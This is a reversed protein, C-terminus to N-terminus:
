RGRGAKLAAALAAAEGISIDGSRTGADAPGPSAPPSAPEPPLGAPSASTTPVAAQGLTLTLDMLRRDPPMTLAPPMGVLADAKVVLVGQRALRSASATYSEALGKLVDPRVGQELATLFMSYDAVVVPPRDTLANELRWEMIGIALAAGALAGIM